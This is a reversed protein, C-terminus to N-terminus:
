HNSLSLIDFIEQMRISSDIASGLLRLSPPIYCFNTIDAEILHSLQEISGLGIKGKVNSIRPCLYEVFVLLFNENLFLFSFLDINRLEHKLQHIHFVFDDFLEQLGKDISLAKEPFIEVDHTCTEDMMLLFLDCFLDFLINQM